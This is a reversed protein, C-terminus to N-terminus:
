RVARVVRTTLENRPSGQKNAPHPALVWEFSGGVPRNDASPSLARGSHRGSPTSWGSAAGGPAAAAAAAGLPTTPKRGPRFKGRWQRRAALSRPVAAAQGPRQGRRWALGPLALCPRQRHVRQTPPLQEAARSWCLAEAELPPSWRAGPGRFHTASSEAPYARTQCAILRFSAFIPPLSLLM